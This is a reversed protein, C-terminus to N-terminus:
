LLTKLALHKAEIDLDLLPWYVMNWEGDVM